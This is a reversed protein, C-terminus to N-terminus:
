KLKSLFLKLAKLKEQDLNFQIDKKLYKELRSNSIKNQNSEEIAIDINKIGEELSANFLEIFSSDIKKNSVWAAFVVPLGTLKFWEESLDFKYSYSKDLNFTRDGIIVGASNGKIKNEFGPKAQEFKPNINWLEKCLIQCLAVSTRSQYDLFITEIEHLPVDSLLLVTKVAGNAGICYDSIIHSEKLQPIVAVPILGLDVEGELLKRACESPIDKALDIANMLEANNEMGYIFPTTNLYSVVSIKIRKM